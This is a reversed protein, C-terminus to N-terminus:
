FRASPAEPVENKSGATSATEFPRCGSRNMSDESSLCHGVVRAKPYSRMVLWVGVLEDRHEAAAPFAVHPLRDQRQGIRSSTLDGDLDQAAGARWLFFGVPGSESVQELSKGVGPEDPDGVYEGAAPEMSDTLWRCRSVKPEHDHVKDFARCHPVPDVLVRVRAGCCTQCQQPHSDRICM